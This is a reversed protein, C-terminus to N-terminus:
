GDFWLSLLFSFPTVSRSDLSSIKGGEVFFSGGSVLDCRTEAGLRELGPKATQNGPEPIWRSARM